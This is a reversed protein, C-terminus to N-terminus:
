NFVKTSFCATPRCTGASSVRFTHTVRRLVASAPRARPAM